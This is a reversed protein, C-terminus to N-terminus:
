VARTVVCDLARVGQGEELVALPNIEAERVRDAFDAIFRSMASVVQAATDLDGKARGRWGALTTGTRTEAIMARAERVSVPALRIAVDHFLEVTMGGGGVVIVPGFEPDVRTGILLEGLGTEMKQVLLRPIWEGAIVRARDHLTTAARHVDAEDALALAVLGLESKHVAGPVLAKMVVPFGIATAASVASDVSDALVEQPGSIGYPAVLRRSEYEDLVEGDGALRAWVQGAAKLVDDPTGASLTEFTAHDSGWALCRALAALGERTGRLCLTGKSAAVEEYDPHPDSSLNSLAVLPVGAEVAGDAVHALLTAYRNAQQAGLGRPADQLLILLGIDDQKGLARACRRAVTPDYLGAWTLDLPNVVHSFPPLLNLIEDHASSIRPLDLAVADAADLALAIEGGSLSLLAAGKNTNALALRSFVLATEILEDLSSVQIAGAQRLAADFVEINGAVAGTHAMVASQGKDSRGSKLVIVPKGLARARRVNDLFRRPQRMQELFVIIVDVAPDDILREVYDTATTVAENGSTILHSFELGRASNLLAIGVSGSQVIAAINGPRLQDPLSTGFLATGSSLNLYGLCNPGCVSLGREKCLRTLAEQAAKGEAGAEGFGSSMIAVGEAGKDAASRTIDVVRAAPVALFAADIPEPIEEISPYCPADFLTTRKPNVFHVDGEYGVARLANWANFGPGVKDSAGVIALSRPYLLKDLSM